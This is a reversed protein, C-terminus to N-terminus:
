GETARALAYGGVLHLLSLMLCLRPLWRPLTARSVPLLLLVAPVFMLAWDIALAFPNAGLFPQNGHLAGLYSPSPWGAFVNRQQTWQGVATHETAVSYVTLLLNGWLLLTALMAVAAGRVLAAPLGKGVGAHLLMAAAMWPVCLMVRGGPHDSTLLMGLAAAAVALGLLTPLPRVANTPGLERTLAAAALPGITMTAFFAIAGGDPVFLALALISSLIAFGIAALRAGSGDRQRARQRSLPFRPGALPPATAVAAARAAAPDPPRSASGM